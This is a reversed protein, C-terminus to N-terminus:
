WAAVYTPPRAALFEPTLVEALLTDFAGSQVCPLEQSVPLKLLHAVLPAVCLVDQVASLRVNERVGQGWVGFSATDRAPSALGHHCAVSTQGPPYLTMGHDSYIVVYDWRGAAVLDGLLLDAEV